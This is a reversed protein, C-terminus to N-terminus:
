STGPYNKFPNIFSGMLSSRHFLHLGGQYLWFFFNRFFDMTPKRSADKSFKRSSVGSLKLLFNQIFKLPLELLIKKFYAELIKEFDMFSKRLHIKSRNKVTFQLKWLMGYLFKHLIEWIFKQLFCCFFKQFFFRSSSKLDVWQLNELCIM